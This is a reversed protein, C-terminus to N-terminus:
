PITLQDVKWEGDEEVLDLTMNVPPAPAKIIGVQVKWGTDTPDGGLALSPPGAVRGTHVNQVILARFRQLSVRQQYARTTCGYYAADIQGADLSVALREAAGYARAGNIYLYNVLWACAGVFVAMALVLPVYLWNRKLRQVITMKM